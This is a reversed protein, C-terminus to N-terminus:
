YSIEKTSGVQCVNDTLQKFFVAVTETKMYAYFFFLAALFMNLQIQISLKIQFINIFSHLHFNQIKFHEVKIIM